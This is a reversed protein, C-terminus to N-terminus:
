REKAYRKVTELIERRRDFILGRRVTSPPSGKLCILTARAESSDFCGCIGGNGVVESSFLISPLSPDASLECFCGVSVAVSDEPCESAAVGEPDSSKVTIVALEDVVARVDRPGVGGFPADASDCSLVFTIGLAVGTAIMISYRVFM